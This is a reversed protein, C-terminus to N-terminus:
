CGEQGFFFVLEQDAKEGAANTAPQWKAPMGNILDVLYADIKPYGCTSDLWVNAVNGDKTVTFNVRGPQLKDERIISTMEESNKRLYNILVENGGFYNAQQEPIITMWYVISDRRLKGTYADKRKCIASVFFNTSYDTKQILNLQAENLLDSTGLEAINHDRKVIAVESKQYSKVRKTAREPLIEVISKANHVQEKTVATAFRHGIKYVLDLEKPLEVYNAPFAKFGPTTKICSIENATAKNNLNVFGLATLSAAATLALLIVYSKKM